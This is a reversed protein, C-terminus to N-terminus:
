RHYPRKAGEGAVLLGCGRGGRPSAISSTDAGGGIGGRGWRGRIPAPRPLTRLSYFAM